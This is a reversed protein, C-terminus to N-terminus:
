STAWGKIIANTTTTTSSSAPLRVAEEVGSAALTDRVARTFLPDRDHILFCTGLLFGGVADTANRTLQIVWPGDPEATIGAIQVRRTAAELLVFVTFRTLGRPM